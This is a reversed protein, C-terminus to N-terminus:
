FAHKPNKLASKFVYPACPLNDMFHFYVPLISNKILFSIKYLM